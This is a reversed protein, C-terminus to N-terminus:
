VSSIFSWQCFLFLPMNLTSRYLLAFKPMQLGLRRLERHIHQFLHRAESVQLRTEDEAASLTVCLFSGPLPVSNKKKGKSEATSSSHLVHKALKWAFFLNPLNKLAQILCFICSSYISEHCGALNFETAAIKMWHTRMNKWSQLKPECDKQVGPSGDDGLTQGSHSHPQRSFCTWYM